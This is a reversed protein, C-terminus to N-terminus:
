CSEANTSGCFFELIDKVAKYKEIRMGRDQNLKENFEICVIKFMGHKQDKHSQGINFDPRGGIQFEM